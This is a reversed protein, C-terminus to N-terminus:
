LAYAGMCSKGCFLKGDCLPENRNNGDHNVYYRFLGGARRRNGCWACNQGPQLDKAPVCERLIDYRAFPDRSVQILNPM